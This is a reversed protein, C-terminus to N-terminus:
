TIRPWGMVRRWASMQGNHLAGHSTMMTVAVHGVSPFRARMREPAPRALVEPSASTYAEALRTNSEALANLLEEKSRYCSRDVVPIVGMGHTEKWEALRQPTGSILSAISDNVWAMHGLLFAAHNMVRGAVPQACMQDDPIDAVLRQSYNLNSAHLSLVVDQM